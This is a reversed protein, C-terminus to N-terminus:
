KVPVEKYCLKGGLRCVGKVHGVIAGGIFWIFMWLFLLGLALAIVGVGIVFMIDAFITLGGIPFTVVLIGSTVALVALALCLMTPVLLIGVGLVIVPIAIIIYLILLPVVPKRVTRVKKARKSKKKPEEPEPAPEEVAEPEQATNELVGEDNVVYEVFEGAAQQEEPAEEVAPAAPAESVPSSYEDLFADVPDVKDQAEASVAEAVASASLFDEVIDNEEPKPEDAEALIDAFPDEEAAEVPAAQEEAPEAAPEEAEAEEAPASAEAPEAAAAEEPGAPPEDSPEPALHSPKFAPEEAPASAADSDFTEFLSMQNEDVDEPMVVGYKAFYSDEIGHIVSIFQPDPNDGTDERSDSSVQLKRERSNYARAVIVAQRTPTGLHQLLLQEDGCQDFMDEYMGLALRRDEEYMFTLLKGLEALFKQKNIDTVESLQM